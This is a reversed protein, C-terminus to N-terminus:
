AMPTRDPQTRSQLAPSAGGGCPSAGTPSERYSVRWQGPGSYQVVRPLHARLRGVLTSVHRQEPPSTGSLLERGDDTRGRRIHLDTVRAERESIHAIEATFGTCADIELLVEPLDVWPLLGQVQERLTLLSSPEDLKDLGTLILRDRGQTTELRVAVNTPFNAVTRHYATDLQETLAQLEPTPTECRGLARCVQPRPGFGRLGLHQELSQRPGFEFAGPVIAGAGQEELGLFEEFLEGGQDRAGADIEHQVMSDEGGMGAPAAPSGGVLVRPDRLLRGCGLGARAADTFELTGTRAFGAVPGPSVQHPAGKFKVHERTRATAAAHTEDRGNLIRPHDAPDEGM